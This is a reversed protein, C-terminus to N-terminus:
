SDLFQLFFFNNDSQTTMNSPIISVQNSINGSSKSHQLLALLTQYQVHTFGIQQSQVKTKSSIYYPSCLNQSPDVVEGILLHLM